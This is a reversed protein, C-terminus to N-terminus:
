VGKDRSKRGSKGRAAIGGRRGLAQMKARYANEGLREREVESKRKAMRAAIASPTQSERFADEDAWEHQDEAFRLGGQIESQRQAMCSLCTCNGRCEFYSHHCRVCIGDWSRDGSHYYEPRTVISTM